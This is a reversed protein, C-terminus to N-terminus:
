FHNLHNLFLYISLALELTPFFQFNILILNLLSLYRPLIKIFGVRCILNILFSLSLNIKIQYNLKHCYFYKLAPTQQDIIFHLHIPHTKRSLM